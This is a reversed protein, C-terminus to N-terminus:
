RISHTRTRFDYKLDDPREETVPKEQEGDEINVGHIWGNPLLLIPRLLKGYAVPSSSEKAQVQHNFAPISVEDTIPQHGVASTAGLYGGNDDSKIRLDELTFPSKGYLSALPKPYFQPPQYQQPPLYLPKKIIGFSGFGGLGYLGAVAGYQWFVAFVQFVIANRM